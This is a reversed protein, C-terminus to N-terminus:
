LAHARYISDVLISSALLLSRTVVVHGPWLMVVDTDLGSRCLFVTRTYACQHNISFLDWSASQKFFVM